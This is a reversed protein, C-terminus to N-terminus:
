KGIKLIFNKKHNGWLHENYKNKIYNYKKEFWYGFWPECNVYQNDKLHIKFVM